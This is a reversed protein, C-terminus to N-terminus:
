LDKSFKDKKEISDEKMIELISIFEKNNLWTASAKMYKFDSYLKGTSNNRRMELEYALSKIIDEHSYEEILKRYMKKCKEQENRLVRTRPYHLYQDSTPFLDWFESFKTDFDTKSFKVPKSSKIIAEYSEKLASIVEEGKDTIFINDYLNIGLDEDYLGLFGRRVLNQLLISRQKELSMMMELYQINKTFICELIMIQDATVKFKLIVGELLTKLIM